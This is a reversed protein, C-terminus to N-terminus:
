GHMHILGDNALETIDPSNWWSSTCLQMESRLSAKKILSYYCSRKLLPHARVHATGCLGCSFLRPTKLHEDMQEAAANCSKIFRLCSLLKRFNHVQFSAAYSTTRQICTNNRNSVATPFNCLSFSGPARVGAFNFVFRHTSFYVKLADNM